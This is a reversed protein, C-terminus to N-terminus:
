STVLTMQSEAALWYRDFGHVGSQIFVIRNYVGVIDPGNRGGAM